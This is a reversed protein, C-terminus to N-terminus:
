GKDSHTVDTFYAAIKEMEAPIDIHHPCKSLCVGCKTCKDARSEEQVLFKYERAHREKDAFMVAENYIGFISPIAVKAPCPLCYRCNSCLIPIRKLYERRIRKYLNIDKNDLSNAKCVNALSLNEKVQEIKSMGSLLTTCGELNWVWRMAREQPSQTTKSKDWLTTVEDPIPSVLKGGRL